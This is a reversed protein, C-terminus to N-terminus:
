KLSINKLHVNTNDQYSSFYEDNQTSTENSYHRDLTIGRNNIHMPSEQLPISNYKMFDQMIFSNKLHAFELDHRNINQNCNVILSKLNSVIIQIEPRSNLEIQLCDKYIKIYKNIPDVVYKTHLYNNYMEQMLIGVSYVDSKKYYRLYQYKVDQRKLRNSLGYDTFKINKNHIFINESHLGLNVIGKAHLYKVANAIQLSLKIMEDLSFHQSNERLYSRLTGGNVDEFILLYPIISSDGENRTVGNFRIINPHIDVRHCLKLENIVENITLENNEFLKLLVTTKNKFVARYVRTFKETKKKILEVVRFRTYDHCTINKKIIVKQLQQFKNSTTSM